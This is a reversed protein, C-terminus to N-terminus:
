KKQITQTVLLFIKIILKKKILLIKKILLHSFLFIKNKKLRYLENFVIFKFFKTTTIVM